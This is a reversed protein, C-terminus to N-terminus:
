PPGGPILHIATLGLFALTVFLSPAMAPPGSLWNFLPLFLGSAWGPGVAAAAVAAAVFPLGAAFPVYQAAREFGRTLHGALADALLLGALAAGLLAVWGYGGVGLYSAATM